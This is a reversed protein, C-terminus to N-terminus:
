VAGGRDAGPGALRARERCFLSFVRGIPILPRSGESLFAGSLVTRTSSVRSKYIAFQSPVMVPSSAQIHVAPHVRWGLADSPIVAEAQGSSPGNRQLAGACFDSRKGM